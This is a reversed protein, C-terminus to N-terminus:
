GAGEAALMAEKSQQMDKEHARAVLDYAFLRDISLDPSDGIEILRRVLARFRGEWDMM